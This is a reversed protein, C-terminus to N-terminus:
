NIVESLLTSGLVFYGPYKSNTKIENGETDYLHQDAPSQVNTPTCITEISKYTTINLKSINSISAIVLKSKESYQLLDLPIINCIKITGIEYTKSIDVFIEARGSWTKYQSFSSWTLGTISLSVLSLTSLIYDSYVTDVAMSSENGKPIVSPIRKIYNVRTGAAVLEKNVFERLSNLDYDGEVNINYVGSRYYSNDQFKDSGSLKSISYRFISQAPIEVKVNKPLNGGYYKWMNEISEISGRKSHIVNIADLLKIQESLSAEERIDFNYQKAKAKIIDPRLSDPSLMIDTFEDTLDYTEQLEDGIIRLITDQVTTPYKKFTTIIKKSVLDHMDKPM